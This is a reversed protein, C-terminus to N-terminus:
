SHGDLGRSKMSNESDTHNEVASLKWLFLFFFFFVMFFAKFNFEIM